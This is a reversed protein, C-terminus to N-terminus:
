AIGSLGFFAFSAVSDGPANTSVRIANNSAGLNVLEFVTQSPVPSASNIFLIPTPTGWTAGNDTSLEYSVSSAYTGDFGAFASILVANVRGLGTMTRTTGDPSARRSLDLAESVVKPANPAGEATARLNEYLGATALASTLPKGPLLANPDIDTWDAM